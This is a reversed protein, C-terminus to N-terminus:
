ALKLEKLGQRLINKSANEDRDHISGCEVCVWQRISLNKVEKNKYGCESCYQSSAFWPSIKHYIRGYWNSKYELQRIFEYWSVDAVSKALNHNKVMKSIQLSESIIVQNEGIIKSSLKHLFDKRINTIKEHLKAIKIRQKNRNNSGVEMKSHKRQLKALKNEYKYLIKPNQIHNGNTDILFEKIGLDIGITNENQPLPKTETSVLISVFYKESSHQSITASKIIGCFRRHVKAEIWKLKPLKIKSNKFDVEINNTTFNTKYSYRHIKKSKFKPFGQKKNGKKIERFFNQFATDLQYISNTLAFKDIEKLWQYNEDQKLIRNLHNNCDIKSMSRKENNYLKVKMDLYYNYVFRCSGFTKTLQIQQEKSPYIRFKFTKLV